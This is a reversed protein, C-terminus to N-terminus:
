IAGSRLPAFLTVFGRRRHNYSKQQSTKQLVTKPPRFINMSINKIILSSLIPILSGYAEHSLLVPFAPEIFSLHCPCQQCSPDDDLHNIQSDLLVPNNINEDNCYPCVTSYSYEETCVVLVSSSFFFLLLISILKTYNLSM